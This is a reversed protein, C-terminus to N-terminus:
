SSSRLRFNKLPMASQIVTPAGSIHLAIQTTSHITNCDSAVDHDVKMPLLRPLSYTFPGM